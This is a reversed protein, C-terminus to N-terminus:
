QDDKMASRIGHKLHYLYEIESANLSRDFIALEDLYGVYNLGLMIGVQSPDWTLKTGKVSAEGQLQGNIYLGSHMKGKESNLGSFTFTVHTWQDRAFPPDKVEVLPRQNKPLAELKRNDPNWSILDPFTGLRFSRPTEERPFDVWLAGDNWGRQTIHVPDVYTPPLDAVPDLRLWFSITGQWDRELYPLNKEAEFFVAREGKFLDFRLAHGFRGEQKAIFVTDTNLGSKSDTRKFSFSTYIQPNGAAIDANEGHDFSALFCLHERLVSYKPGEQRQTGLPFVNAAVLAVMWVGSGAGFSLM